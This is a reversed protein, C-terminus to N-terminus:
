RICDLLEIRSRFEYLGIDDELILLPPEHERLLAAYESRMANWYPISPRGWFFSWNAFGSSDLIGKVHPHRAVCHQRDTTYVVTPVTLLDVRM